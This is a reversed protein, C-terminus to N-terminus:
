QKGRTKTEIIRRVIAVIIILVDFGILGLRIPEFIFGFHLIILGILLPFPLSFSEGKRYHVLIASYITVLAVVVGIVMWLITTM